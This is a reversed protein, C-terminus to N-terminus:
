RSLSGQSSSQPNNLPTTMPAKRSTLATRARRASYIDPRFDGLITAREPHLRFNCKSATDDPSHEVFGTFVESTAYQGPVRAARAKGEEGIVHGNVSGPCQEHPYGAQQHPVVVHQNTRWTAQPKAAGVAPAIRGPPAHTAQSLRRRAGCVRQPVM